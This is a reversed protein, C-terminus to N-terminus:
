SFEDKVVIPRKQSENDIFSGRSRATNKRGFYGGRKTKGTTTAAAAGSKRSAVGAVCFLLTALFLCAVAAWMFGFAYRGLSAAQGNSRFNNRGKVYAATMLAATLSQFFLALSCLMSSLFSGIRSCLAFLGLFLSLIAFFLAILVFPFMFRTLYFYQRTGVFQSPVGNTTGFNRGSPPDLPYAPHVKGCVNRGASNVSCTNWFTWRSLAPAGPIKSTAAQLFYIRNTPNHDVAGALLTFFILLCAGAILVLSALALTPRSAMTSSHHKLPQSLIARDPSCASAQGASLVIRDLTSIPYSYTVLSSAASSSPQVSPPLLQLIRHIISAQRIGYAPLKRLIGLNRNDDIEDARSLM